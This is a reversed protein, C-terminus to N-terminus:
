GAKMPDCFPQLPGRFAMPGGGRLACTCGFGMLACLGARVTPAQLSPAGVGRPLSNGLCKPKNFRMLNEQAHLVEHVGQELGTM